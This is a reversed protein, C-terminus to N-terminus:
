ISRFIKCTLPYPASCHKRFHPQPEAFHFLVPLVNISGGGAEGMWLYPLQWVASYPSPIRSFKRFIKWRRFVREKAVLLLIILLRQQSIKIVAAAISNNDLFLIFFFLLPQLFRSCILPSFRVWYYSFTKWARLCSFRLGLLSIKIWKTKNENSKREKDENIDALFSFLNSCYRCVNRMSREWESVWASM